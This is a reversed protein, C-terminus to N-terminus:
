SVGRWHRTGGQGTLAVHSSEAETPLPRGTTLNQDVCFCNHPLLYIAM